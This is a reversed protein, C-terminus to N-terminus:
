AATVDVIAGPNSTQSEVDGIGLWTGDTKRATHWVKGGAAGIVV